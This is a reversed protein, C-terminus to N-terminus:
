AKPSLNHYLLPLTLLLCCNYLKKLLTQLLPKPHWHTIITLCLCTTIFITYIITFITILPLHTLPIFLSITLLITTTQLDTHGFYAMEIISIIVLFILVYHTKDAKANEIPNCSGFLLPDSVDIIASKQPGSVVIVKSDCSLAIGQGGFGVDFREIEM